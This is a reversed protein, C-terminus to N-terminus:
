ENVWDVIVLKTLHSFHDTNHTVLMFGNHLCFTAQLLDADGMPHGFAKMEAYLKAAAEWGDRRIDPMKMAACFVDFAQIQKGAKVAILGRLTEYYTMPPIVLPMNRDIARVLKVDIFISFTLCFKL